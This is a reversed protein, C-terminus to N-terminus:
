RANRLEMELDRAPELTLKLADPHVGSRVRGQNGVDKEAVGPSQTVRM